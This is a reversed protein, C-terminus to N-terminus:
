ELDEHDYYTIRELSPDAAFAVGEGTCSEKPDWFNCREGVCPGINPLPCHPALDPNM